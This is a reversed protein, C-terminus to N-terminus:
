NSSEDSGGEDEIRAFYECQARYSCYACANDQLLGLPPHHDTDRIYELATAMFQRAVARRAATVPEYVVNIRPAEKYNYGVYIIGIRDADVQAAYILTQVRHAPKIKRRTMGGTKIDYVVRAGDARRLVLDVYGDVLIKEGPEPELEYTLREEILEITAGDALWGAILARYQELVQAAVIPWPTGYKHPPPNIERELAAVMEVMARIDPEGGDRLVEAIVAMHAHLAKGFELAWAPESDLGVSYRLWHRHPCTAISSIESFSIKDRKM